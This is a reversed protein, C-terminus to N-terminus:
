LHRAADAPRAQHQSFVAVYGGQGQVNSAVDHDTGQTNHLMTPVFPLAVGVAGEIAYFVWFIHSAIVLYLWNM